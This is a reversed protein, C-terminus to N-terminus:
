QLMNRKQVMYSKLLWNYKDMCIRDVRIAHVTYPVVLVLGIDSAIYYQARVDDEFSNM